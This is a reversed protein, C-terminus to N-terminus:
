GEASIYKRVYFVPSMPSQSDAAPTSQHQVFHAANGEFSEELLAEDLPPM